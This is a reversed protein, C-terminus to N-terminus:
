IVWPIYQNLFGLSPVFLKRHSTCHLMLVFPGMFYILVAVHVAALWWRFQGPLFLWVGSAVVLTTLVVILQVFPLDRPDNILRLALRALPGRRAPEVYTPDTLILEM